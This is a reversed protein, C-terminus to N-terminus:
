LQPLGESQKEVKSIVKTLTYKASPADAPPNKINEVEVEIIYEFGAEYEFGEIQSYFNTWNHSNGSKILLCQQPVLASCDGRRSAVTMTESNNDSSSCSAFIIAIIFLLKYM